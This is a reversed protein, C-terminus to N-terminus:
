PLNNEKGDNIIDISKGPQSKSTIRYWGNDETLKWVDSRNVPYAAM